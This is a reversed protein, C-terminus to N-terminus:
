EYLNFNRIITDLGICGLNCVNGGFVLLRELDLVVQKYKNAHQCLDIYKKKSKSMQQLFLEFCLGVKRKYLYWIYNVYYEHFTQLM